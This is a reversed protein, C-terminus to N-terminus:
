SRVRFRIQCSSRKTTMSVLGDRQFCIPRLSASRRSVVLFFRRHRCPTDDCFFLGASAPSLLSTSLPTIRVAQRRAVRITQPNQNQPNQAPQQANGQGTTSPPQNGGPQNGQGSQMNPQQASQGGQGTTSPPQGQASPQGGGQGSTNQQASPQQTGTQGQQASPQQASPQQTGSVGQGTTTSSGSAGTRQPGVKSQLGLASVTRVDIGGSTQLGEKRQFTVLAEKTRPSLVGTVESQVLLGRQVLVLQVERIEPESLQLVETSTVTASGGRSARRPGAPVVDVIRRTGPELIVIEDEVVFFSYDRYQPFTEILIPFTSISVFHVSSPVVTGTSVAFNVSSVRPANRASLVSQQISAQKQADLTVGSQSQTATGSPQSQQQTATGSGTTGQQQRQPEQTQQKPQAKQEPAPQASERSGQGTTRDPEKGTSQDKRGRQTQGSNPQRQSQGAKPEPASQAGERSGQGTTRDQKMQDRQAQGRDSPRESSQGGKMSEGGRHIESSGPSQSGSPGSSIGRDGGGASPASAGGPSGGAGGGDRMGQASALTIGTLLTAAGLLFRSKMMSQRM